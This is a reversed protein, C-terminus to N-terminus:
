MLYNNVIWLKNEKLHMNSLLELITLIVETIKFIVLFFGEKIM